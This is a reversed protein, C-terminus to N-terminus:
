DKVAMIMCWSDVSIHTAANSWQWTFCMKFLCLKLYKENKNECKWRSLHLISIGVCYNQCMRSHRRRTAESTASTNSRRGASWKMCQWIWWPECTFLQLVWHKVFWLSLLELSTCRRKNTRGADTVDGSIDVIHHKLGYLGYMKQFSMVGVVGQGVAWEGM